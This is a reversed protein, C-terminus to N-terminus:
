GSGAPPNRRSSALRDGAIGTVAAAFGIRGPVLWVWSAGLTVFLLTDEVVAHCLGLFLGIRTVEAQEVNGEEGVHMLPGAGYLIGFFVGVILAFSGEASLRLRRLLPRLAAEARGFADARQLGELVVMIPTVILLITKVMGLSGLAAERLAALLPEDLM